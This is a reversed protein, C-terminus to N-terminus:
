YFIIKSHFNLFKDDAEAEVEVAVVEEEAAL